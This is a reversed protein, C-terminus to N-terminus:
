ASTKAKKHRAPKNRGGKANGSGEAEAKAGERAVTVEKEDDDDEEKKLPATERLPQFKKLEACFRVQSASAPLGTHTHNFLSLSVSAHRVSPRESM